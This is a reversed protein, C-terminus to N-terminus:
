EENGKGSGCSCSRCVPTLQRGQGCCFGAPAPLGWCMLYLMAVMSYTLMGYFSQQGDARPWCAVGLAILTISAIRSMIVGAGAIEAGFLLRIVIPPYSLLVVGTAGEALAAIMLLTKMASEQFSTGDSTKGSRGSVRESGSAAAFHTARAKKGWVMEHVIAPMTSLIGYPNLSNRGHLQRSVAFASMSGAEVASVRRPQFAFSLQPNQGPCYLHHGRICHSEANPRM